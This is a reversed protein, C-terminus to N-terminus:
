RQRLSWHRRPHVIIQGVQPAPPQIPTAAPELRGLPNTDTQIPAFEDIESGIVVQVEGGIRTERPGRGSCGPTIAATGSGRGENGAIERGHSEKFAIQRPPSSSFGGEDEAATKGGIQGHYTGQSTRAIRDEAVLQIMGAQNIPGPEGARLDMNVPMGIGIV